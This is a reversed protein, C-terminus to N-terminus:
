GETANINWRWSLTRLGQPWRNMTNFAESDDLMVFTYSSTILLLIIIRGVFQRSM